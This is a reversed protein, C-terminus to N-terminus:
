AIIFTPCSLLTSAHHLSERPAVKRRNANLPLLHGENKLLVISEEAIHQADELGQFPDVASRLPLNDIVGAV